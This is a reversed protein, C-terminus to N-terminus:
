LFKEAYYRYDDVLFPKCNNHIQIKRFNFKPKEIIRFYNKEIKEEEKKEEKNEEKNETEVPAKNNEIKNQNVFTNLYRENEQENKEEELSNYLSNYKIKEKENKITPCKYGKLRYKKKSSFDNIKM